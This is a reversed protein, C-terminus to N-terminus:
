EYKEKLELYKQYEEDNENVKKYDKWAKEYISKVDINELLKAPFISVNTIDPFDQYEYENFNVSIGYDELIEWMKIKADDIGESIIIRHDEITDDDSFLLLLYDKM